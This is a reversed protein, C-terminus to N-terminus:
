SLMIQYNFIFLNIINSPDFIHNEEICLKMLTLRILKELETDYFIWSITFRVM